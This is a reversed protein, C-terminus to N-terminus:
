QLPASTLPGGPEDTPSRSSSPAPAAEGEGVQPADEGKGTPWSIFMALVKTAIVSLEYLNAGSYSKDILRLAQRETLGAGQLGIRLTEVVDDVKFQGNMLRLLVQAVGADCRQELARLEGIAFCFEHEGGPWVIRQAQGIM